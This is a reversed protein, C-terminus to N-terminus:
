QYAANDPKKTLQENREMLIVADGLMDLYKRRINENAWEHNIYLPLAEPILNDLLKHEELARAIEIMELQLSDM